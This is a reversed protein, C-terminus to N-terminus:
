AGEAPGGGAEYEGALFKALLRSTPNEVVSVLPVELGTLNMVSKALELAALSTLGNELFSSDADMSPRSLIDAARDLVTERLLQEREHPGAAALREPLDSGEAPEVVPDM